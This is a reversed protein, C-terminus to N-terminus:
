KPGVSLHSRAVADMRGLQQSLTEESCDARGLKECRLCAERMYEGRGSGDNREELKALRVFWAMADVSYPNRSPNDSEGSLRDLLLIHDLMAAKARGYDANFYEGFVYQSKKVSDALKLEASNTKGYWFSAALAAVLVVLLPLGVKLLKTRM